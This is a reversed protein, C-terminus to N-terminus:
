KLGISFSCLFHPMILVMALLITSTKKKWNIGGYMMCMIIISVKKGTEVELDHDKDRDNARPSPSRSPDRVSPSGRDLISSPPQVLTGSYQSVCQKSSERGSRSHQPPPPQWYSRYNYYDYYWNDAYGSDDM